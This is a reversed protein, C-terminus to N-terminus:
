PSVQLISRYLKSYAGVVPEWGFQSARQIGLEVLAAATRDNLITSLGRRLSEMDDPDFFVGANGIVEPISSRDSTLVPCGAQMAELPPIGFGEYLSPFFFFRAHGYLYNLEFDAIRGTNV